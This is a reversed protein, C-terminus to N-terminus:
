IIDSLSGDPLVRYQTGGIDIVEGVTRYPQSDGKVKTKSYGYLSLQNTNLNTDLKGTISNRLGIIKTQPYLTIFRQPDEPLKKEYEAQEYETLAAGSRARALLDVIESRLIRYQENKKTPLIKTTESYLTSLENLKKSLDYLASIGEEQTPSLTASKVGTLTSVLAGDKKPTEKGMATVQGVSLGALKLEAPSPMKGTAAYESAYAVLDDAQQGPTDTGLLAAAEANIKSLNARKIKDDLSMLGYKAAVTRVEDEDKANKIELAAASNGEQIAINSYDSKTTKFATLDAQEQDIQAKYDIAEKETLDDQLVDFLQFRNKLEDELPEFEANIATQADQFAGQYDDNAIKYSIAKDALRSDRETELNRIDANVGSLLKGDPNSEARKILDKYQRQVGIAENEIRKAADRKKAVGFEDQVELTRAGKLGLKEMLKDVRSKNEQVPTLAPTETTPATFASGFTASANNRATTTNIPTPPVFPTTPTTLDAPTIVSPATINLNRQSRPVDYAPLGRAARAAIGRETRRQTAM